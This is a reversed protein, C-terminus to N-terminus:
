VQWVLIIDWECKADLGGLLFFHHYLKSVCFETEKTAVNPVFWLQTCKM